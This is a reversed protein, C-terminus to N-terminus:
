GFIGALREVDSPDNYVHFSLRLWLADHITSVTAVIGHEHRLRSRLDRSKTDASVPARVAVMAACMEPPALRETGWAAALHDGGFDALKNMYARAKKPALSQWFELAAPVSLWASYDRTASWGFSGVFGADHEAAVIAPRLDGQHAPRTWLLAAGKPACLWKHCSGVYWDAGTEVIQLDLMGPGHAGDVLVPVGRERCLATLRVIPLVVGGPSTVHELVAYRTRGSLAAGVADIVQEETVFPTPLDAVVLKAGAVECINRLALRLGGHALSSTVIEDGPAIPWSRLVANLGETANGVMVLDDPAVGVFPALQARVDHLAPELRETMFGAPDSELHARWESQAALVPVPAAGFAGHDLHILSPDLRWADRRVAGFIDSFPISLQPILQRRTPGM